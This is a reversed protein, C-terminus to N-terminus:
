NTGYIGKNIISKSNLYFLPLRALEGILLMSLVVSEVGFNPALWKAMALACGVLLLSCFGQFKFHNTGNLFMAFCVNISAIVAWFSFLLIMEQSPVVQEGIWIKLVDHGFISLVLAGFITISLTIKISHVLRNKIWEFDKKAYAEGYVVWLPQLAVSMVTVIIGVLKQTVSYEAVAASGIAASVIIVPLNMKASYIIQVLMTWGGTSLIQPVYSRFEVPYRWRYQKHKM